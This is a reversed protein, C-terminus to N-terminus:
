EGRAPADLVGRLVPVTAAVGVRILLLGLALVALIGVTFLPASVAAAVVLFFAIASAALASGIVAVAAPVTAGLRRARHLAARPMGIRDLAVYLDRRELVAATQTIAVQCAVVIFSVAVLALLMTRADGFLLLQDATMIERSASRSIADLYGLLSGAPLLIFAALALASVGRWAARPDDHMSRAAVLRAADSTRSAITRALLSIVFPGVIGLVAMVALVAGALAAVLVTIGWDPSATQVVLVAGGLVALAFVPRLWSMRPADQRTRVGLPSLVVRRMGFQASIAAVIVLVPPICVAVWWPLWLDESRPREGYIPLLAILFPLLLALVTGALVGATAVLTVEAVAIRRLRGATAGLLRLTALRDDRSRAALRAAASGLTVLPVLLVGVMGVALIRYGVEDSPVQWFQRALIAVAFALVTTVGSATIQLWTITVSARRPRILMVAASVSM